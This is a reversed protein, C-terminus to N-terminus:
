ASEHFGNASQESVSHCAMAIPNSTQNDIPKMISM